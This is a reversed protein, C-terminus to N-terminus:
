PLRVRALPRETGAVDVRLRYIGGGEDEPAGDPGTVIYLDRWDEGGFCLSTVMPVPMEIRGTEEGDRNYIGVGSGHALAVWVSGDAAVALGDPSGKRTKAFVRRNSVKGDHAVDYAYISNRASDSHYLTRGDASFGLGNTLMVDDALRHATGDLDIMHLFAPKAGETSLARFALSGVYIRGAADTVLDNFGLIDNEPDDPILTITASGDAPKCAVTRGSVILGGGAHRAIGGIGKRHAVIDTLSGDEGLRRVGGNITDSFLLGHGPEYLPGEILGFGSILREPRMQSQAM